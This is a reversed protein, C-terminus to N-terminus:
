EEAPQPLGLLAHTAQEIAIDISAEASDDDGDDAAVLSGYVATLVSNALFLSVVERPTGAQVGYENRLHRFLGLGTNWETAEYAPDGGTLIEGYRDCLAQHAKITGAKDRQDFSDVAEAIFARVLGEVTEPSGLYNEKGAATLAEPIAGTAKTREDM